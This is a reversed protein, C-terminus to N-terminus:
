GLVSFRITLWTTEWDTVCVGSTAMFRANFHNVPSIMSSATLTWSSIASFHSTASAFRSCLSSISFSAFFRLSVSFALCWAVAVVVLPGVFSGSLGVLVSAEDESLSFLVLGEDREGGEKFVGVLGEGEEM